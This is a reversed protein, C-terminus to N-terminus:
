RDPAKQSVAKIEAAIEHSLDAVTRSMASVTAEYDRPDAPESFLSKRTLLVTNGDRRIISWRAILAIKGDVGGEFRTVEVPVQYDIPTSREWPFVVTRDTPILMSLNEALVRAFNQRLPEAWKDFEGLHLENGMSRTVIQPRDLYPPFDVPGVGVAVSHEAAAFAGQSSSLPTLVYFRTPDTEGRICGGLIMLSPTLTVLAFQLLLRRM